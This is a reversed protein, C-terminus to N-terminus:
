LPRPKRAVYYIWPHQCAPLRPDDAPIFEDSENGACSIDVMGLRRLEDAGVDPRVYYLASSKFSHTGDHVRAVPLPLRYQLLRNKAWFITAWKLSRLTERLDAHIRFRFRRVIEPLFNTNHSSFAMLGGPRLVRHMERLALKRQDADLHDIGNYSFLVFDYTADAAFDLNRVDGVQFEFQPLASRCQEIMALSYDIGLYSNALPAFYRSTRGGGVGIDLMAMDGITPELQTLLTREPKQLPDPRGYLAVISPSEYTRRTLDSTFPPTTM